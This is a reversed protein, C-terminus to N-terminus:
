PKGYNLPLAELEGWPFDRFTAWGGGGLYRDWPNSGTRQRELLGSEASVAVAGSKDTVIFTSCIDVAPAMRPEFREYTTKRDVFM